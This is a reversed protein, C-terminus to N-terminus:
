RNIIRVISWRDIFLSWVEGENFIASSWCCFDVFRILQLFTDVSVVVFVCFYCYRLVINPTLTISKLVVCTVILYGLCNLLMGVVLYSWISEISSHQSNINNYCWYFDYSKNLTQKTTKKTSGANFQQWSVAFIWFFFFLEDTRSLLM